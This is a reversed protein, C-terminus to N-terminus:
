IFLGVIPKAIEVLLSRVPSTITNLVVSFQRPFIFIILLFAIGIYNEYEMFKFYQRSPLIGSFIKSGDLPPVPILNFVALNVNAYLFLLSLNFLMVRWDLADLIDISYKNGIYLLPFTFVLALLLNALPGAISVLMTGRKRNKYYMPNIPVPKAWGFGAGSISSAVMMITGLIDLHKLPNLTLRGMNKATPDGFRYSVAAHAFEHFSLSLLVVIAIYVYQMIGSM